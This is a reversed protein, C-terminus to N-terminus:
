QDRVTASRFRTVDLPILQGQFPAGRKHLEPSWPVGFAAVKGTTLEAIYVVSAGPRIQSGGARRIEAMGTVMLYRPNKAPDVGLDNLINYSYFASFTATNINLVAAKLDGTLFDLFYVAEVENDLPGTAIAFNDYRDTAVGLAANQPWLIGLLLGALGGILLGLALYSGRGRRLSHLM